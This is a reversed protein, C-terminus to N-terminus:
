VYDKKDSHKDKTDSSLFSTFSNKLENAYFFPGKSEKEVTISLIEGQDNGLIELYAKKENRHKELQKRVMEEDPKWDPPTHKLVETIQGNRIVAKYYYQKSPVSAVAGHSASQQPTTFSKVDKSKLINKMMWDQHTTFLGKQCTMVTLRDAPVIDQTLNRVCQTAEESALEEGKIYSKDGFLMIIVGQGVCKEITDKIKARHEQILTQVEDEDKLVDTDASFMVYDPNVGTIETMLSAPEIPEWPLLVPVNLHHIFNSLAKNTEEKVHYSYVLISHMKDTGFGEAIKSLMAKSPHVTSQVGRGDGEDWFEITAKELSGNKMLLDNLFRIDPEWGPPDSKLVEVLRGNSISARYFWRKMPIYEPQTYSVSPTPDQKTTGYQKPASRQVNGYARLLQVLAEKHLSWPITNWSMVMPQESRTMDQNLTTFINSVAMSCFDGERYNKDETIIFVLKTGVSFSKEVIEKYRQVQEDVNPVDQINDIDSVLVLYEPKHNMIYDQINIQQDASSKPNSPIAFEKSVKRIYNEVQDVSPKSAHFSLIHVDPTGSIASKQNERQLPRTMGEARTEPRSPLARNENREPPFENELISKAEMPLPVQRKVESLKSQEVKITEEKEPVKATPPKPRPVFQTGRLTPDLYFELAEEHIPHHDEEWSFIFSKVGNVYDETFQSCIKRWAWRSLVSKDREGQDKYNDDGGIVILVRDGTAKQLARYVKAYGIGANAENISLRSEHAHVVFVAYEFHDEKELKVCLENMRPLPFYTKEIKTERSLKAAVRQILAEVKDLNFTRDCNFLRFKLAM